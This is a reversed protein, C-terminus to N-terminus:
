PRTVGQRADSGGEASGRIPRPDDTGSSIVNDGAASEILDGEGLRVSFNGDAVTVIQKEAWELNAFENNAIHNWIRFYMEINETTGEAVPAGLATLVRGQYDIFAPPPDIPAYQSWAPMALSVIAVLTLKFTSIPKM